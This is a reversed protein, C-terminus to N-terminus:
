FNIKLGYIHSFFDYVLLIGDYYDPSGYFIMSIDEAYQSLKYEEGGITVDKINKDNRILIRLVEACLLFIYPSIPGGTQLRM